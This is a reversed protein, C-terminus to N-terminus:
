FRKLDPPRLWNHSRVFGGSIRRIQSFNRVSAVSIWYQSTATYGIAFRGSSMAGRSMPPGPFSSM